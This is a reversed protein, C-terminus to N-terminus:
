KNPIHQSILHVRARHKIISSSHCIPRRSIISINPLPSGCSIFFSPFLSKSPLLMDVRPNFLYICYRSLPRSCILVVFWSLTSLYMLIFLCWSPTLLYKFAVDDVWLDLFYPYSILLGLTPFSLSLSMSKPTLFLSLMSEPDLIRVLYWSPPQPFLSFSMSKPTSFMDVRPNLSYLCANVRPDFVFWSLPQPFM